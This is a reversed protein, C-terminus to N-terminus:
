YAIVAADNVYAAAYELPMYAYRGGSGSDKFILVDHPEEDRGLHFGVFLVSHGDYVEEPPCMPVVNEQGSLQKPWRLGACVPFESRIAELIAEMEDESLGTTVDWPKIWSLEYGEDRFMHGQRRAERSPEWAPDFEELYPALSAECIGHKEFGKWIDSFFGGDKREGLADGTAWNLYEESLILGMQQRQAVAFEIAATIAFVSCTPRKGQSKLPLGWKAFLPRLDARRARHSM